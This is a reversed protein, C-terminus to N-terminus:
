EALSSDPAIRVSAPQPRPKRLKNPAAGSSIGQSSSGATRKGLKPIVGRIAEKLLQPNFTVEHLVSGGVGAAVGFGHTMTYTGGEKKLGATATIGVGALAEVQAAVGVGAAEASLKGRARAGAFLDVSGGAGTITEGNRQARGLLANVNAQAGVSGDARAKLKLLRKPEQAPASGNAAASGGSAAPRRLKRNFVELGAEGDVRAGVFLQGDFQVNPNKGLQAQAELQANAGVLAEAKPKLKVPGKEVAGEYRAAVLNQQMQAGVFGAYSSKDGEVSEHNGVKLDESLGVTTTDGAYVRVLRENTRVDGKGTLTGLNVTGVKVEQDTQKKEVRQNFTAKAYFRRGRDDDPNTINTQDDIVDNGESHSEPGDSSQANNEAQEKFAKDPDNKGDVKSSHAGIPTNQPVPPIPRTPVPPRGVNNAPIPPLPRTPAPPRSANRSEATPNTEVDHSSGVSGHGSGNGDHSVAPADVASEPGTYASMAAIADRLGQQREEENSYAFGYQIAHSADSDDTSSTLERDSEHQESSSTPSELTYPSPSTRDDLTDDPANILGQLGTTHVTSM